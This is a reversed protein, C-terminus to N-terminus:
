NLDWCPGLIFRTKKNWKTIEVKHKESFNIIDESVENGWLTPQDFHNIKALRIMENYDRDLIYGKLMTIRGVCSHLTIKRGDYLVYYYDEDDDAIGIFRFVRSSCIVMQGKLEDFQNTIITLNDM